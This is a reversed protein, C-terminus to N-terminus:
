VVSSVIPKPDKLLFRYGGPALGLRCSAYIEGRLDGTFLDAFDNKLRCNVSHYELSILSLNSAPVLSSSMSTFSVRVANFGNCEVQILTRYCFSM